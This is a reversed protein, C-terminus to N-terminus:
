PEHADRLDDVHRMVLELTADADVYGKEYEKHAADVDALFTKVADELEDSM